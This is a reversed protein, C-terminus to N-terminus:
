RDRGVIAAHSLAIGGMFIVMCRRGADDEVVHTGPRAPRAHSASREPGKVPSQGLRASHSSPFPTRSGSRSATKALRSGSLGSEPRQRCGPGRNVNGFLGGTASHGLATERPRHPRTGQGAAALIAEAHRRSTHLEDRLRAVTITGGNGRGTRAAGVSTAPYDIGPAIQRLQGSVQLQDIVSPSNWGVPSATSVHRCPGPPALGGLLTAVREAM